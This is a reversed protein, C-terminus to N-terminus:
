PKAAQLGANKRDLQVQLDNLNVRNKANAGADFYVVESWQRAAKHFREDLCQRPALWLTTPLRKLGCENAKRLLRAPDPCQDGLDTMYVVADINRKAFGSKSGPKVLEYLGEIGSQLNTGGRGGYDLGKDLFQKYNKETIFVPEGRAITDAFSVIVDPSTGRGVRRAMGLAESVFRKLMADDVSGSTDIAVFILPKQPKGPVMSGMYPVDRQSKFGMDGADVHYITWPEMQEFKMGKGAGEIVKKLAMEWTVVPKFFDLMQARAYNVMHGGPFRSGVRMMDETAKNIASVLGDKTSRVEEELGKLDDYGLKQMTEGNVGAKALIDAVDKPDMVHDMSHTVNPSPITSKDIGNQQSPDGPQGPQPQGQGPQPQGNGKGSRMRELDKITLAGGKQPNGANSNQPKLIHELVQIAMKVRDSPSMQDLYADGTKGSAHAAGSGALAQVAKAHQLDLELLGQHGCLVKLRDIASQIDADTVKAPNAKSKGIHRLDQALGSLDNPTLQAAAQSSNPLPRGNLLMGKVNDSEQAAGEMIHEFSVERNPLAPPEKWTKMLEAAISEESRVGWKKFDEINMACGISLATTAMEALYQGAAKTIDDETPTYDYGRESEIIAAAGMRTLDINIRIDQAENALRHPFESMRTLHLRRLHDAEHGILFNASDKGAKHEAILRRAFDDSIFIKGSKDVFATNVEDKLEPLDYVLIPTRSVIEALMGHRMIDHRVGSIYVSVVELYEDRISEIEDQLDQANANLRKGGKGIGLMQEVGKDNDNAHRTVGPAQAQPAATASTSM